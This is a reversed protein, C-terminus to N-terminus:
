QGPEKTKIFNFYTKRWGPGYNPGFWRQVWNCISGIRYEDVARGESPTGLGIQREVPFSDDGLVSPAPLERRYDAVKKGYSDHIRYELIYGCLGTRNLTVQVLPSKGIETDAIEVRIFQYPWAEYKLAGMYASLGGILGLITLVAAHAGSYVTM